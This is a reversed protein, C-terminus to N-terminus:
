RSLCSPCFRRPRTWSSSCISTKVTPLPNATGGVIKATILNSAAVSNQLASILDAATTQYTANVNLTVNIVRNIVSVGPLGPGGFDSKNFRLSIGNQDDGLRVATFELLVANSTGFDSRVTAAAFAGDLNARTIQIGGVTTSTGLSAADIVQAEDFLFTLSNPAVNRVDGNQLLAGDNPQIGILKAGNLLQRDELREMQLNRQSKPRLSSFLKQQRNKKQKQSPRRSRRIAM